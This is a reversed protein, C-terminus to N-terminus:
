VDKKYILKIKNEVSILINGTNHATKETKRRMKHYRMGTKRMIIDGKKIKTLMNHIKNMQLALYLTYNKCSESCGKPLIDTRRNKRYSMEWCLRANKQINM